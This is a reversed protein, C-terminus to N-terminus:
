IATKGKYYNLIALVDNEHVKIGIKKKCKGREWDKLVDENDDFLLRWKQNKAVRQKPTEYQVLHIEDFKVPIKKLAQRKAKRVAQKYSKSSEKSLWSIIGIKYGMKQLDCLIKGLEQLDVMPAAEIYPSADEARLKPLWNEVAYLDFLTGDMDFYIAKSNSM